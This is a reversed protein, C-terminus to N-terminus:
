PRHFSSAVGAPTFAVWGAGSYYWKNGAKINPDGLLTAVQAQTIGNKMQDWPNAKVAPKASGETSSGSGVPPGADGPKTGAKVTEPNVNSKTSWNDNKTSNPATRDHPAVYTGDKRTYGKVHVPGAAFVTSALFVAALLGSMISFLKLCRM